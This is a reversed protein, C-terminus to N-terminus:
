RRRKQGRYFKKDSFPFPFKQSRYILGMQGQTLREERKARDKRWKQLEVKKEGNRKIERKSELILM